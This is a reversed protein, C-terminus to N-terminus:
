VTIYLISHYVIIYQSM